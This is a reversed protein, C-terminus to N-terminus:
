YDSIKRPWPSHITLFSPNGRMMGWTNVEFMTKGNKISAGEIVGTGVNAIGANNILLDLPKGDLEKEVIKASDKVSKDSTVDQEVTMINPNNGLESTDAGPLVGAFVRWGREALTKAKLAGMGMAAGSIFVTKQELM